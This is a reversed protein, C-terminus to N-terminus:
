SEPDGLIFTVSADFAALDEVMQRAAAEPIVGDPFLPLPAEDLAQLQETLPTRTLGMRAPWVQPFLNYWKLVACRQEPTDPGSVDDIIQLHAKVDDMAQRQRPLLGGTEIDIITRLPAALGARARSVHRGTGACVRCPKTPNGCGDWFYDWQALYEATGDVHGTGQCTECRLPPIAYSTTIMM